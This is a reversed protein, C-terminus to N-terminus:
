RQAEEKCKPCLGGEVNLSHFGCEVCEYPEPISSPVKKKKFPELWCVTQFFDVMSTQEQFISIEIADDPIEVEVGDSCPKLGSLGSVTKERYIWKM